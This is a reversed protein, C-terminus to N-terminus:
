KQLKYQCYTIPHEFIMESKIKMGKDKLNRIRAALRLCGYDKLAQLPTIKKKARLDREILKLQSERTKMSCSQNEYGVYITIRKKDPKVKEYEGKCETEFEGTLVDAAM